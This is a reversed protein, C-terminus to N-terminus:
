LHILMSITLIIGVNVEFTDNTKNATLWEDYSPDTIRPYSHNTANGDKTCAFTLSGLEFKVKNGNSLGHGNSTTIVLIASNYTADTVTATTSPVEEIYISNDYFPDKKYSLGNTTASVFTHTTTNTSPINDLVQVQFTNTQVNFIKLWKDSVPDTSRPYTHNTVNNDLLCTFTLSDDAFKIQENNKLGHNAITIEM